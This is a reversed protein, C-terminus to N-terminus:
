RSDTKLEYYNNVPNSVVKDLSNFFIKYFRLLTGLKYKKKIKLKGSAVASVLGIRGYALDLFTQLEIIFKLHYKDTSGIQFKISDDEFIITLEYFPKVYLVIKKNWNSVLDYFESDTKRFSFINYLSVSILDEPKQISIM